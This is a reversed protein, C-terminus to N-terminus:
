RAVAHGPWDWSELSLAGDPTIAFDVGLPLPAFDPGHTVPLKFLVPVGHRKGYDGFIGAVAAREDYRERLPVRPPEPHEATPPATLMTSKSDHCDHFGGLLLASIGNLHGAQHLQTLLGDLKHFGEDLDEFFLMAGRVDAPMYPTGALYAWTTLNGGLVAGHVPSVPVAGLHEFRMTPWLPEPKEGRVLAVTADFQWPEMTVFSSTAPMNAHLTWWGWRTRAYEHLVTVDSYGVLLKRKPPPGHQRTLADLLPLLRTCGYGGRACWLVDVDDDHALDWLAAVRQTDPGAYIFDREISQVHTKVAFGEARLRDVGMALEVGGIPSAPTFVGLRTPQTMRRHYPMARSADTV